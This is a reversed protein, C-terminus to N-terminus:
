DLTKIGDIWQAMASGYPHHLNRRYWFCPGQPPGCTGETESTLEYRSVEVKQFDPRGMVRFQQGRNVGGTDM